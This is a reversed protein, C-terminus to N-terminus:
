VPQRGAFGADMDHWFSVEPEGLKWCLYVERGDRLSPFDVLGYNLDKLLCGLRGIEGVLQEFRQFDVVVDSAPKGGGNSSARELVPQLEPQLANVRDRIDNIQSLLARLQPLLANAEAVTFYRAAM